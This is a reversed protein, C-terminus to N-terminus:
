SLSLVVAYITKFYKTIKDIYYNKQITLNHLEKIYVVLMINAYSLFVVFLLINRLEIILHRTIFFM